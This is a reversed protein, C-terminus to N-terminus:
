PTRRSGPRWRRTASRSRWSRSRWSGSCRGTGCCSAGRRSSSSRATPRARRGVRAAGTGRPLTVLVAIYALYTLGDILYLRQFSAVSAIDIILSSVVGGVGLGANLLMFNLGYVKERAEVPVLRTLMATAAPWLGVTGAVIFSAVVFGQAATEVYGISTTCVAEVVLGVVM